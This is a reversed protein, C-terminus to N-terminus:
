CFIHCLIIKKADKLVIFFSTPDPDPTPDADPDPDVSVRIGFVPLLM